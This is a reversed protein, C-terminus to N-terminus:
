KTRYKEILRRCQELAEQDVAKKWTILLSMGGAELDVIEMQFEGLKEFHGLVKGWVVTRADDADPGAMTTFDHPLPYDVQCEGQEDKLRIQEEIGTIIEEASMRITQEMAAGRTILGARKKQVKRAAM